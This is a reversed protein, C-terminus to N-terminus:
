PKQPEPPRFPVKMNIRTDYSKVSSGVAGRLLAVFYGLWTAAALLYMTYINRVHYLLHFM